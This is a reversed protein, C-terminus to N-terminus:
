SLANSSSIVYSHNRKSIKDDSLLGCLKSSIETQHRKLTHGENPLIDLDHNLTIIGLTKSIETCVKLTQQSLVAYM